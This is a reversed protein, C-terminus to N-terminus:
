YYEDPWMTGNIYEYFRVSIPNDFLFDIFERTMSTSFSRKYITIGDPPIPQRVNLRGNEKAVTFPPEMYYLETDQSGNLVKFIKVMEWNSKLPFDNWSVM